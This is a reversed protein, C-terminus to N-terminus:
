NILNILDKSFLTFGIIYHTEKSSSDYESKQVDTITIIIKKTCDYKYIYM